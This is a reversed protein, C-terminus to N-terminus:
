QKTSFLRYLSVLFSQKKLINWQSKLFNKTCDNESCFCVPLPKLVSIHVVYIVLFYARTMESTQIRSWAVTVVWCWSVTKVEPSVENWKPPRTTSEADKPSFSPSSLLSPYCMLNRAPPFSIIPIKSLLTFPGESKQWQCSRWCEARVANTKVSSLSFILNSKSKCITISFM